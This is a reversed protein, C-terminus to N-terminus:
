IILPSPPSVSITVSPMHKLPAYHASAGSSVISQIENLTKQKLRIGHMADCVVVAAPRLASRPAPFRSALLPIPRRIASSRAGCVTKNVAPLESICLQQERCSSAAHLQPFARSPLSYRFTVSRNSRRVAAFITGALMFLKNGGEFGNNDRDAAPARRRRSAACLSGCVLRNNSRLPTHFRSLFLSACAGRM